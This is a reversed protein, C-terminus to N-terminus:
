SGPAPGGAAKAFVDALRTEVNCSGILGAPVYERILAMLQSHNLDAACLTSCFAEALSPTIPGVSSGYTGSRSGYFMDEGDGVGKLKISHGDSAADRGRDWGSQFRVAEDDLAFSVSNWSDERDAYDSWRISLSHLSSSAATSVASTSAADAAIEAQKLQVSGNSGAGEKNVLHYRLAAM